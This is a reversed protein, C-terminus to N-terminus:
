YRSGFSSRENDNASVGNPALFIFEKAGIEEVKGQGEKQKRDM